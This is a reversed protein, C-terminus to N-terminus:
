QINVMEHRSIAVYPVIIAIRILHGLGTRKIKQSLNIGCLLLIAHGFDTYVSTTNHISFSRCDQTLPITQLRILSEKSM